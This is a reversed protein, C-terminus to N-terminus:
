GINVMYLNFITAMLSPLMALALVPNSTFYSATLSVAIAILLGLIVPTIKFTNVFLKDLM